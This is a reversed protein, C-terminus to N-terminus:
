DANPKSQFITERWTIQGTQCKRLSFAFIALMIAGSFPVLLAYRPKNGSWHYILALYLTMLIFHLSSAELWQPNGDSTLRYIGYVLAPYVTFISSLIFWMACLIRWPSRRETGSYIRGWGNFMQKLNTHMRTSALHGGSFFRVIFDNSKLARMLEVDETIQDKVTQHGGVAEYARRRVLFFQGNAYAREKRSDENTKSISHMIAWAGALPPLMLREILSRCDIRTLISLADYERQLCISIATSLADRELTVDSDVFFLWSEDSAGLPSVTDTVRADEGTHPAISVQRVKTEHAVLMRRVGTDRSASLAIPPLSRVGVHLAHCKGLWGPPLSGRAIHIARVRSDSAAIEDMVAGTDDESRDDITVIDFNPYDQALVADLCRRIGEGEDKAPILITVKPPYAPLKTKWKLLRKMKFRGM